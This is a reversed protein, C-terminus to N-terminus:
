LEYLFSLDIRWLRRQKDYMFNGPHSDEIGLGDETLAKDMKAEFAALKEPDQRIAYPM